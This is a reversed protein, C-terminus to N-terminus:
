QDRFELTESALAEFESTESEFTESAESESTESEYTKSTKSGETESRLGPRPPERGSINRPM